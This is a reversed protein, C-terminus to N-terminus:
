RCRIGHLVRFGGGPGFGGRVFRRRWGRASLDCRGARHVNQRPAGIDDGARGVCLDLQVSVDKGSGAVSPRGCHQGRQEIRHADEQRSDDLGHDVRRQISIYLAQTAEVRLEHAQHAVLGQAGHEVHRREVLKDLHHLSHNNSLGLAVPLLNQRLARGQTSISDRAWQSREELRGVRVKKAAEPHGQVTGRAPGVSIWFRELWYHATHLHDRGHFFRDTSATGQFENPVDNWPKQVHHM